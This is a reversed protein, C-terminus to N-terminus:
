LELPINKTLKALSSFKLLPLLYSDTKFFFDRSFLVNEEFPLEYHLPLVFTCNYNMLIHPIIVEKSYGSMGVLQSDRVTRYVDSPTIPKQLFSYVTILEPRNM